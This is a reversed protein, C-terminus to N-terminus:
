DHCVLDHQATNWVISSCRTHCMVRQHGITIEFYGKDALEKRRKEARDMADYDKYDAM